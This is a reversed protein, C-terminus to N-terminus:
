TAPLLRGTVITVDDTRRAGGAHERLASLLVSTFDASPLEYNAAALAVWREMGFAEGGSNRMEPAGRTFMVFRDGPELVAGDQAFISTPSMGLAPAEPRMAFCERTRERVVLLPVHGASAIVLTRRRVIIKVYQATVPTGPHIDELMLDNVRGLIRVPDDEERSVQKLLARVHVMLMASAVGEPGADAVMMGLADHGHMVFGYYDGAVDAAPDFTADFDYGDVRPLKKPLLWSQIERAGTLQGQLRMM